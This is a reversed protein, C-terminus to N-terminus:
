RKKNQNGCSWCYQFHVFNIKGCAECPSFLQLGCHTCFGPLSDKETIGTLYRHECSPCTQSTYSKLATEEVIKNSREESSLMVEAKKEALYKQLYKIVYYGIIITLIVGISYQVYGGFSPLYPVLGFFFAYLVFLVYGWIFPAYKSKRYKIVLFIAGVLLPLIFLLRIGFVKLNYLSFAKDYLVTGDNETSQIATQISGAEEDKLEISIEDADIRAKWKLVSQKLEDLKRTKQLVIEDQEKSNLTQRTTIWNDYSEKENEYAENAAEFGKENTNKNDELFDRETGIQDLTTQYTRIKANDLFLERDPRANWTGLDQLINNGLLILFIGFIVSVATLIIRTIKEFARLSENAM